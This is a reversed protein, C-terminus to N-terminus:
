AGSKTGKRSPISIPTYWAAVKRGAGARKRIETTDYRPVWLCVSIRLWVGMLIDLGAGVGVSSWDALWPVAVAGRDDVGASGPLWLFM